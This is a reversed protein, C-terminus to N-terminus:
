PQLRQRQWAGSDGRVYLVRDHMRSPRGQWFEIREPIVRYGGWHAPRQPHQGSQQTTTEFQRELTARDAVPQSQSSAIAGLQSALPRSSFYTDSEERTVREIKGEIRVQRELEVWHFLLAVFPNAAVERGKRSDYNTFWTFGNQDFQKILVIRSSPRGDPGVTAVSMANPEPIQAKIAEDFWTAFQAIPDAAVELESLSARSYDKRLDAISM